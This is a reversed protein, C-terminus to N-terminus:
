NQKSRRCFGLKLQSISAMSEFLKEFFGSKLAGYDNVQNITVDNNKKETSNAHCIFCICGLQTWVSPGKLWRIPWFRDTGDKLNRWSTEMACVSQNKLRVAWCAYWSCHPEAAWWGAVTIDKKRVTAISSWCHQRVQRGENYRSRCQSCAFKTALKLPQHLSWKKSWKGLDSLM